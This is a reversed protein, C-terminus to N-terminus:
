LPIAPHVPQHFHWSKLALPLRPSLGRVTAESREESAEASQPTLRKEVAPSSLSRAGSFGRPRKKFVRRCRFESSLRKRRSCFGVILM